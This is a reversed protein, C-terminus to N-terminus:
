NNRYILRKVKLVHFTQIDTLTSTITFSSYVNNHLKQFHFLSINIVICTIGNYIYLANCENLINYLVLTNMNIRLTKVFKSDYICHCIWKFWSSATTKM